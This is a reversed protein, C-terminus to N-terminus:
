RTMELSPEEDWGLGHERVIGVQRAMLSARTSLSLAVSPHEPSLMEEQIAHSREYLAEAEAHKGQMGLLRLFREVM